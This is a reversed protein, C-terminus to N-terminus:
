PTCLGANGLLAVIPAPVGAATFISCNVGGLAIRRIPGQADSTSFLSTTNQGLWGAWYLYGEQRDRDTKNNGTLGQAGGPNFAGINVLRNLKNFSTTLAPTAAGLDRAAVGLDRTYPKAIRAFPRIQNKLQPTAERVLPLVARNAEPLRRVAPRLSDLAPGLRQGFTDVKALTSETQRLAGPLRRVAESIQLDQSALAEFVANSSRVLRVIERDKTGLEQTLLGYRNVLRKLNARRRAIATTVKNLDRNLPGLRALTERLDTGRGELGKGAGSVLLKLYDRTETDLASLVEDPDVDPATNSVPVRGNEPIPEGTGPDVEVFMDKLGTKTRLLVTADRRIYGEYDRELKLTVVAKGEELEVEGIEGIKVGATRVTQGQGPQVAQADALEVKVAFPKDEVLPFRLRQNSLIYAAVGLGLVFIGAILLFDGLHKGIARRM